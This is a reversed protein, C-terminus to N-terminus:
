YIFSKMFNSVNVEYFFLSDRKLAKSFFDKYRKKRKLWKDLWNIMRVNDGQTRLYDVIVNEASNPQKRSYCFRVMFLLASNTDDEDARVGLKRKTIISEFRKYESENFEEYDLLNNMIYLASHTAKTKELLKAYIDLTSRIGLYGKIDNLTVALHGCYYMAEENNTNAKIREDLEDCAGILISLCKEEKETTSYLKTCIDLMNLENLFQIREIENEGPYMKAISIIQGALDGLENEIAKEFKEAKDAIKVYYIYMEILSVYDNRFEHVIEKIVSDRKATEFRLLLNYKAELFSKKEYEGKYYKYYNSMDMFYDLLEEKRVFPVIRDAIIDTYTM